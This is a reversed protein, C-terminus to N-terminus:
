ENDSSESEEYLPLKEDIYEPAVAVESEYDEFQSGFALKRLYVLYIITYLFLGSLVGAGVALLADNDEAINKFSQKFDIEKVDQVLDNAWEKTSQLYESGQIWPKSETEVQKSEEEHVLSETFAKVDNYSDFPGVVVGNNVEKVEPHRNGRHGQKKMGGCPRRHQGKVKPGKTAHLKKPEVNHPKSKDLNQFEPAIKLQQM